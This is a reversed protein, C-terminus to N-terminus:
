YYYQLLSFIDEIIKDNGFNININNFREYYAKENEKDLFKEIKDMLNKFSLDEDMIMQCLHQNFFYQANEIQDGRSVKKSIPIFISLKKLFMLEFVSNIGSRSVVIDANKMFFIMEKHSVEEELIYFNKQDELVENNINNKGCIHIINFKELLTEKNKYIINNISKAGLSGGIILIIKKNNESNKWSNIKNIFNDKINNSQEDFFVNKNIIPGYLSMKESFKKNNDLTSQFSVGIKSSFPMSIKNALGISYDSEHIFVKINLFYAAMIVPVCVFGGKAFVLKPKYKKLIFLADFFGKLIKFPMMIHKYTIYRRLKDSSISFYSKDNFYEKFIKEEISNKSGIYAIKISQDKKIIDHILFINPLVHGATGGGVFFIDINNNKM